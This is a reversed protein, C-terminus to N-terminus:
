GGSAGDIRQPMGDTLQEILEIWGLAGGIKPV